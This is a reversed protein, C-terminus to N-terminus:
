VTQRGAGIAHLVIGSEAAAEDALNPLHVACGVLMTVTRGDESLPAVVNEYYKRNGGATVYLIREVSVQGDQAVKAYIDALVGQTGQDRIQSLRRGSYNERTNAVVDAGVLRYSFDLPDRHVNVLYIYPLLRPIEVPDLDARAPMAKGGRKEHWYACFEILLPHEPQVL